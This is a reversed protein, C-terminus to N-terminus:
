ETIMDKCSKGGPIMPLVHDQYVTHCDLLFPGPTELMERIADELEDASFVDRAPIDYSNAIGVFHPFPKNEKTRLDTNGRKGRYFLDEIQAVMGLHQNNLIISTIEFYFLFSNYFFLLFNM